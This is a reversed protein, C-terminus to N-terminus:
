FFFFVWVVWLSLLGMIIGAERFRDPLIKSNNHYLLLTQPTAMLWPLPHVPGSLAWSSRAALSTAAGCRSCTVRVRGPSVCCRQGGFRAGLATHQGLDACASCSSAKQSGYSHLCVAWLYGLTGAPFLAKPDLEREPVFCRIKNFLFNWSMWTQCGCRPHAMYGSYLESSSWPGSLKFKSAASFRM